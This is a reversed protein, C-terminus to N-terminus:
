SALRWICAGPALHGKLRPTYGAKVIRRSRALRLFVPGFARDNHPVIGAAKCANVIIEGSTPGYQTLYGLAFSEAAVAFGPDHQEAHDAVSELAANRAELAGQRGDCNLWHNPSAVGGCYRCVPEDFLSRQNM